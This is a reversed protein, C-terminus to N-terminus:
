TPSFKSIAFQRENNTFLSGRRRLRLFIATPIAEFIIKFRLAHGCLFQVQVRKTVLAKWLFHTNRFAYVLGCHALEARLIGIVASIVSEQTRKGYALVLLSLIFIRM